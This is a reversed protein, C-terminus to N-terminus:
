YDCRIHCKEGLRSAADRGNVTQKSTGISVYCNQTVNSQELIVVNMVLDLPHSHTHTHGSSSLSNYDQMGTERSDQPTFLNVGNVRTVSTFIFTFFEISNSGVEHVTQTCTHKCSRFKRTM